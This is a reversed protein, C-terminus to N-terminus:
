YVGETRLGGGGIPAVRALDDSFAPARGPVRVAQDRELQWPLFLEENLLSICVQGTEGPAVERAPNAPDVLRVWADHPPTFICRYPDGAQRPRQCAIGMLTNGYWGVVKAGPLLEEELFRLGEDSLSTGFWIVGSVNEALRASAEPHDALAQLLPPTATVVRVPQSRLVELAQGALHAIYRRVEDPRGERNLRKVWRPDMDITHSLAGRMRALRPVNAGVLHPGTPGLHLWAGGSPFGHQDLLDNVRTLGNSRAAADVIRRPAGTTGGTEWVAFPGSCGRPILDAAEVTRWEDAVAPFRALDAATQIARVPDFELTAARRLWYPSGTAPDFHWRIIRRVHADLDPM